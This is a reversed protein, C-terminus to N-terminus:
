QGLGRRLLWARYHKASLHDNDRAITSDRCARRLLGLVVVAQQRGKRGSSTHRSLLGAALDLRHRMRHHLINFCIRTQQEQKHAIYGRVIARRYGCRSHSLCSRLFRNWMMVGKRYCLLGRLVNALEGRHQALHQKSIHANFLAIVELAYKRYFHEDGRLCRRSIEERDAVERVWAGFTWILLQRSYWKQAVDIKTAPSLAIFSNMAKRLVTRRQLIRARDMCDNINNGNHHIFQINRRLIKWNRRMLANRHHHISKVTQKREAANWSVKKKLASLVKRCQSYDFETDLLFSVEEDLNDM